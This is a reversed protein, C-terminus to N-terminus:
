KNAILYKNTGLCGRFCYKLGLDYTNFRHALTIGNNLYNIENFVESLIERLFVQKNNYATTTLAKSCSFDLVINCIKFIENSM